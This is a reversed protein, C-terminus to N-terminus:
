NQTPFVGYLAIIFNVAVFPPMNEHPQGGGAAGIAGAAMAMDPAASGYLRMATSSGLADTPGKTASAAATSALLAHRHPPMQAATLTVMEAGGVEGPVYGPGQHV